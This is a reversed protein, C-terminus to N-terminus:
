LTLARFNIAPRYFFGASLGRKDIEGGGGGGACCGRSDSNRWRRLQRANVGDKRTAGLLKFKTAHSLYSTMDGGAVM